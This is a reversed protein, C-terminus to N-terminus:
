QEKHLIKQLLWPLFTGDGRMTPVLVGIDLLCCNKSTLTWIKQANTEASVNLGSWWSEQQFRRKM